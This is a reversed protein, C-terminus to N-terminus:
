PKNTYHNLIQWLVSAAKCASAIAKHM